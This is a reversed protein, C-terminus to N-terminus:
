ALSGRSGSVFYPVFTGPVTKGAVGAAEATGCVWYASSDSPLKVVKGSPVAILPDGADFAGAAVYLVSTSGPGTLTGLTGSAIAETTIGLPLSGSAGPLDVATVDTAQAVVLKAGLAAAAKGSIYNAGM